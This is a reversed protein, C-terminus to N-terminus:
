DDHTPPAASSAAPDSPSDDASLNLARRGKLGLPPSHTSMITEGQSDTLAPAVPPDPSLDGSIRPQGVTVTRLPSFHPQPLPTLAYPQHQQVGRAVDLQRRLELNETRLGRIEQTLAAVQQM